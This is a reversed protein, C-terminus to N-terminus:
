HEVPKVSMVDPLTGPAHTDGLKVRWQPAGAYPLQALAGAVLYPLAREADADHDRKVSTVKYVPNGAPLAFFRLTLLHLYSQGFWPFGPGTSRICDRECDETRVDVDAPQTAWAVSVLFQAEGHADQQAFGRKALGDRLLPEYPPLGPLADEAPTRALRYTAQTQPHPHTQPENPLGGRAEVMTTVGACGGLVALSLAIGTTLWIKM